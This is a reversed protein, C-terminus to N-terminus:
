FNQNLVPGMKSKILELIKEMKYDAGRRIAETTPVVEIEPQVGRGNKPLDKNIVLRFLPLRVRLGTVPLEADPILWASNGYAGGGTEEGVIFVNKQGKVTQAFLTTASFSNGGTLIYVTGDFHNQKKPKFYHKEFYQFHFHGDKKKKTMLLMFLRNFFYNDIYKKYRSNRTIAYLSDAVRFKKDAIFKSLFTSNTVSGGGNGRVDIVLTRINNKRLTRFSTRFFERLGLGRSFTSIDMFAARLPTDIQLSRAMQMMRKRREHPAVPTLRRIANRFLTDKSPDYAKITTQRKEGATDLYVIEYQDKFGFVSSYASGFGARNSLAQYKHTLNYGDSSIYQTLTDLIESVPVQDIKKIVAGRRLVTDDRILNAVVAVTDKGTEADAQWIKVSLPFLKPPVSDRYKSFSKSNRVVTHGCNIKAAIYSLVKRFEEENLSDSLQKEGWDFYQDMEEKPTYWYLGPHNEELMNRFIIYDTNLQAPSYKKSPTYSSNTVACGSMWVATLLLLTRNLLTMKLYSYLSTM